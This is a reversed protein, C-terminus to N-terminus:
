TSHYQQMWDPVYVVVIGGRWMTTSRSKKNGKLMGTKLNTITLLHQM